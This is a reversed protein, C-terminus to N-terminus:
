GDAPQQQQAAEQALQRQHQDQLPAAVVEAARAVRYPNPLPELLRRKIFVWRLIREDVCLVHDIEPLLDPKSAFTVQWM